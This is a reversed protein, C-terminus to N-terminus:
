HDNTSARTAANGYLELYSDLMKDLSYTALCHSRNTAGLRTRLEPSMVLEKLARAYAVEDNWPVVWNQNDPSVMQSCDGVNTCVVPLGTAMAELLVLPMQETDSSLAFVDMAQYHRAPDTTRGCFTVRRKMDSHTATQRMMELLPGDGVIFLHAAPVSGAIKAFARLLRMQNKEPRLGGVTGVVIADAPLAFEARLDKRLALEAPHFRAIDVGNPVYRIRREPIHWKDRAIQCLSRSPVILAQAARFLIRRALQRRLKQQGVEDDLFGDECHIVRYIGVLRAALIADTGGWGYTLVLDPRCSRLAQGVSWLSSSALSRCEVSAPQCLMERGSLEASLSLVTHRFADSTRNVIGATRVEPGGGSFAPFVHVLHPTAVRRGACLPV